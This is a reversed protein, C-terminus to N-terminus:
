IRSTFLRCTTFTVLATRGILYLGDRVFLIDDARVDQKVSYIDYAERGVTQKPASVIEWTAIDSTRVYPIGGLGYYHKGIDHGYHVTVEGTEILRGLSVLDHSQRLQALAGAISPDYYKPVFVGATIDGSGRLFGLRTTAM